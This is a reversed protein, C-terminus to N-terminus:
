QLLEGCVFCLQRLSVGSLVRKGVGVGGLRSQEGEEGGAESTEVRESEGESSRGEEWRRGAREPWPL